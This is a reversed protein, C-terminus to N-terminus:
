AEYKVARYGLGRITVIRFDTNKKFRERLRSIHVDLAASADQAPIANYGNKILTKCFLGCLEKDDEVVLISFM